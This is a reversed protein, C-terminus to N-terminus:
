IGYYHRALSALVILTVVITSRAVYVKFTFIYTAPQNSREKRTKRPMM